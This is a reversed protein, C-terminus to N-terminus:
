GSKGVWGEAMRDITASLREEGLDLLLMGIGEIDSLSQPWMTDFTTWM